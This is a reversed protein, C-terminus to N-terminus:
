AFFQPGSDLQVVPRHRDIIERHDVGNGTFRQKSDRQVLSTFANHAPHQGLHSKWHLRQDAGIDACHCQSLLPRAANPSQAAVLDPLEVFRYPQSSLRQRRRRDPPCRFTMPILPIPAHM